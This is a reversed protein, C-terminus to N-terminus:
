RSGYIYLGQRVAYDLFCGFGISVWFENLGDCTERYSRIAHEFSDILDEPTNGTAIEVEAAHYVFRELLDKIHGHTLAYQDMMRVSLDEVANIPTEIVVGSRSLSPLYYDSWRIESSYHPCRLTDFSNMIHSSVQHDVAPVSRLQALFARCLALNGDFGPKANSRLM